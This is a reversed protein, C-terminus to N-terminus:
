PWAEPAERCSLNSEYEGDTPCCLPVVGGYHGEESPVNSAGVSPKIYENLHAILECVGGGVVGEEKERKRKEDM